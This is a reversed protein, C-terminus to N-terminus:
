IKVIKTIVEWIGSCCVLLIGTWCIHQVQNLMYSYKKFTKSVYHWSMELFTNINLIGGSIYLTGLERHEGDIPVILKNRNKVVQYTEM